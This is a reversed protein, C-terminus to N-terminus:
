DDSGRLITISSRRFKRLEIGLNGAGRILHSFYLFLCVMIYNLYSVLGKKGRRLAACRGRGRRLARARRAVGAGAACRGRGGGVRNREVLLNYLRKQDIFYLHENM